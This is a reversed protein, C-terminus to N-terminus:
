DCMCSNMCAHMCALVCSTVWKHMLIDGQTILVQIHINVHHHHYLFDKNRIIKFILILLSLFVDNDWKNKLFVKPKISTTVYLYSRFFLGISDLACLSHLIEIVM